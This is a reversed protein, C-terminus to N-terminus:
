ARDLDPHRIYRHCCVREDGDCPMEGLPAYFSTGDPLSGDATLRDQM